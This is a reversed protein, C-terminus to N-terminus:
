SPEAALDNFITCPMAAGAGCSEDCRQAMVVLSAELRALEKKQARVEDLRQRVIDRASVCAAAADSPVVLLDRIQDISMGFNRARRIFQLRGVDPWGYTRRGGATRPAVAILDISEYYRITPATCGTRRAAESITMSV